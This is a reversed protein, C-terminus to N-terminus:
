LYLRMPERLGTRSPKSESAGLTKGFPKWRALPRPIVPILCFRWSTCIPYRRACCNVSETQQFSIGTVNGGPHSLNAVLGVGVPDNAPAFVIPISVTAKKLVVAASGYAIVVDIKQEVFESAIEAVREPRGESWRYEIAITSGEIWGLERLRKEFAAAWPRFNAANHQLFGVIPLKSTRQAYAAIPWVVAAQGILTIFERRRM